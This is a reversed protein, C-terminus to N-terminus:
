SRSACCSTPPLRVGVQLASRRPTRSMSAARFTPASPVPPANRALPVPLTRARSCTYPGPPLMFLRFVGRDDTTAPFTVPRVSSDADAPRPQLAFVQIGPVPDGYDDVVRGTIVGGREMPVIVGTRTEGEALELIADASGLRRQGLAPPLYDARAAALVYSGGILGAIEFRGQADSVAIRGGSASESPNIRVAANRVPAQTQADIVVGSVTASAKPPPATTGPSQAGASTPVAAMVIVILVLATRTM